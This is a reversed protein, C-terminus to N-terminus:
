ALVCPYLRALKRRADQSTFRWKIPMAKANRAQVNAEVKRRLHNKDPIRQSLCMNSLVRSTRNRRHEALQRAEAHLPM